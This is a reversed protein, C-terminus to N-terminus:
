KTVAVHKPRKVMKLRNSFLINLGSNCAVPHLCGVKLLSKLKHSVAIPPVSGNALASGM